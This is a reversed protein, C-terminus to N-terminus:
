PTLVAEAAIGRGVTTSLQAVRASLSSQPSGFDAIEDANAYLVSPSTVHLTRKVTSGDLVDLEYTETDEGLPVDIAEWSDGDHRTRRVWSFLVGDVTRKARLHVPALPRLATSAPTAILAVAAPDGYSREAAVIRLQMTQGLADLGRAIPTLHEDLLVFSAGAPLPDGM